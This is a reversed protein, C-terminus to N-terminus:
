QEMKDPSNLKLYLFNRVEKIDKSKFNMRNAVRILDEEKDKKSRKAHEAFSKLSIAEIEQKLTGEESLLSKIWSILPNDKKPAM